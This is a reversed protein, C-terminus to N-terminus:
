WLRVVNHNKFDGLPGDELGLLGDVSRVFSRVCVEFRQRRHRECKGM